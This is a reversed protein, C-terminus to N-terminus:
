VKTKAAATFGPTKKPDATRQELAEQIIKTLQATQEANSEKIVWSVGVASLLQAGLILYDPQTAKQAADLEQKLKQAKKKWDKKAALLGELEAIRQRLKETEGDPVATYGQGNLAKKILETAIASLGIAKRGTPKLSNQINKLQGYLDENLQLNIGTAM